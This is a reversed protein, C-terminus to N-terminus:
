IDLVLRDGISGSCCIMMKRNSDRERQSLVKDRHDPIGELVVTECTGCVGETCSRPVEVGNELLAALITQDPRVRITKKARALIVDFGGQAKPLDSSFYEVHVLEPPLLRTADEFAKLMGTPGCCYFHTGAPQANVITALDLMQYGPAHDFTIEIRGPVAQELRMMDRVFAARERTRAAFYLRWPRRLSELRQTMCWIPTIGIGGAILVSLPAAEFLEFNNTPASIEFVDGPRVRECLYQSGGRSQPDRNVAIMYKDCEGQANILSYSRTLGTPLHIDIHAGATFDLLQRGDLARLEFSLVGDAEYRIAHVRVRM